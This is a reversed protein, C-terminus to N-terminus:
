ERHWWLSLSLAQTTPTWIGQAIGAARLVEGVWANCTHLLHFAGTARYFVHTQGWPAPPIAQVEGATGRAFSALVVDGLAAIQAASVAVWTLRDIGSVDGALDLRLVADDGTAAAWAVSPTIDGYAGVSTYFGSAGWGIVLWEAKAHDMPLGQAKAFGFAARVEPTLPLLIDYHIPGRALGIVETPAGKIPAVAGPTVAGVFGALVYLVPVAILALVVRRLMLRM